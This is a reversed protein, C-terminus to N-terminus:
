KIDNFGYGGVCVNRPTRWANRGWSRRSFRVTLNREKQECIDAPALTGTIPSGIPVKSTLTNVLWAHRVLSPLTHYKVLSNQGPCSHLFYPNAKQINRETFAPNSPMQEYLHEKPSAVTPHYTKVSCFTSKKECNITKYYLRSGNLLNLRRPLINM